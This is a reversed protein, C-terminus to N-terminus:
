APTTTRTPLGTIAPRLDPEFSLLLWRDFGIWGATKWTLILACAVPVMLPDGLGIGVFVSTTNLLLGTFASIGTFAGLVLALGVLLEGAIMARSFWVAAGSDLLGQIMAPRAITGMASVGQDLSQQWLTLVPDGRETWAPDFLRSLGMLLWETGLYLRLPLWVWALRTNGLIHRAVPPQGVLSREDDHKDGM